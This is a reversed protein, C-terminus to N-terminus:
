EKLVKAYRDSLQRAIQEEILLDASMTLLTARFHETDARPAATPDGVVVAATATSVDAISRRQQEQYMNQLVYTAAFRQVEDYKMHGLAGTHEATQWGAISLEGYKFGLELGNIDTKGRKLLDETFQLVKDLKKRRDPVEDIDHDVAKKNDTLERVINARAQNALTRNHNWERLGELSLAILVGVTITVM